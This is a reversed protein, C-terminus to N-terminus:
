GTTIWDFAQTKELPGLSRGAVDRAPLDGEVESLAPEREAQLVAESPIVGM